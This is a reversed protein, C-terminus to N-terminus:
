RSLVAETRNFDCLNESACEIFGQDDPSYFSIFKFIQTADQFDSYRFEGLVYFPYDMSAVASFVPRWDPQEILGYLELQVEEFADPPLIGIRGAVKFPNPEPAVHNALLIKPHTGSEIKPVIQGVIDRAATRGGNVIVIKVIPTRDIALPEALSISRIGIYARETNIFAQQSQENQQILSDTRTLGKSMAQWQLGGFIAFVLALLFNLATIWAIWTTADKIVENQETQKTRFTDDNTDREKRYSESTTNADTQAEILNITQPTQAVRNGAQTTQDNSSQKEPQANEVNIWFSIVFVLYIIKM